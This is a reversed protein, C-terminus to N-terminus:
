LKEYNTKKSEKHVRRGLKNQNNFKWKMLKRKWIHCLKKDPNASGQM